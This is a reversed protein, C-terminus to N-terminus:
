NIKFVPRIRFKPNRDQVKEINKFRNLVYYTNSSVRENIMYSYDGPMFLYKGNLKSKFEYGQIKGLSLQNNKYAFTGSALTDINIQTLECYQLLEEVQEKTPTAWNSGLLVTAWDESSPFSTLGSKDDMVFNTGWTYPTGLDLLYSFDHTLVDFNYQNYAEEFEKVYKYANRREYDFVEYDRFHKARDEINELLEDKIEWVLKDIIDTSPAEFHSKEIITVFENYPVEIIDGDNEEASKTIIYERIDKIEPLNPADPRKPKPLTFYENFPKNVKDMQQIGLNSTAWLTGSPLGLDVYGYEGNNTTMVEDPLYICLAKQVKELDADNTAEVTAEADDLRKSCKELIEAANNYSRDFSNQYSDFLDNYEEMNNKLFTYVDGKFDSGNNAAMQAREWFGKKVFVTQNDEESCAVLVISMILLSFVKKLRHNKM